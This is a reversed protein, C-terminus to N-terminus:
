DSIAAEDSESVEDSVSVEGPGGRILSMRSPLLHYPPV